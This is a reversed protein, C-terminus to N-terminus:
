IQVSLEVSCWFVPGTSAQHTVAVSNYDNKDVRVMMTLCDVIKDSKLNYFIKNSINKFIVLGATTGVHPNIIPLILLLIFFQQLFFAYINRSAFMKVVIALVM